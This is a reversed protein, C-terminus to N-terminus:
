VEKRVSVELLFRPMKFDRPTIIIHHHFRTLINSKFDEMYGLWVLLSSKKKQEFDCNKRYKSFVELVVGDRKIFRFTQFNSLRDNPSFRDFLFPWQRCLGFTKTHKPQSSFECYVFFMINLKEIAIFCFNKLQVGIYSTVILSWYSQESGCTQSAIVSTRNDLQM